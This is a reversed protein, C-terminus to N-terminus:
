SKGYRMWWDLNGPKMLHGCVPEGQQRAPVNPWAAPRVASRFQAPGSLDQEAALKSIGSKAQV